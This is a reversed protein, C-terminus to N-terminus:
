CLPEYAKIERKAAGRWLFKWGVIAEHDRLVDSVVVNVCKQM